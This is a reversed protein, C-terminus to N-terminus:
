PDPTKEDLGLDINEGGRGWPNGIVGPFPDRKEKKLHIFTSCSRRQAAEFRPV